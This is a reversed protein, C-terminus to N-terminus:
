SSNNLMKEQPPETALREFEAFKGFAAVLLSVKKDPKCFAVARILRRVENRCKTLRDM